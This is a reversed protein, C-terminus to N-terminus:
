IRSHISGGDPEVLFESFSLQFPPFNISIVGSYGRSIAMRIRLFYHSGCQSFTINSYVATTKSYLLTRVYIRITFEAGVITERDNLHGIHISLM